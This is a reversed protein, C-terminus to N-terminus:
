ASGPCMLRPRSAPSATAIGRESDLGEFCGVLPLRFYVAPPLSPRGLKDAYFKQCRAEVFADFDHADLIPNTREYFLHAATRCGTTFTPCAGWFRRKRGRWALRFRECHVEAM